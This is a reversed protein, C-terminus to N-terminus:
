HNSVIKWGQHEKAQPHMFGAEGANECPKKEMHTQSLVESRFKGTM